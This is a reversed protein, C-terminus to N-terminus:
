AAAHDRVERQCIPELLRAIMRTRAMVEQALIAGKKILYLGVRWAALEREKRTNIQLDRQVGHEEGYHGAATVLLYGVVVVALLRSLHEPHQMRYGHLAFGSRIDKLDKFSEEVRFRQGYYEIIAARPEDVINTALLWPGKQQHDHLAVIRCLTGHAKTYEVMGLDHRRGRKIGYDDISRWECEGSKRYCFGASLRVVYKCLGDISALFDGGDFGRDLVHVVDIGVLMQVVTRMHDVEVAKMRTRLPDVITWFIPIARGHTVVATTLVWLPGVQTWDTAVVVQKGVLDLSALIADCICGVSVRRNSVFRFMRNMKSKEKASGPMNRGIAAIGAQEGVLLGTVIAIITQLQSAPLVKGLLATVGDRVLEFV